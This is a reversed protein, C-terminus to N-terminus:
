QSIIVGLCDKDNKQFRVLYPFENEYAEDGNIIFSGDAVNWYKNHGCNNGYSRFNLYTTPLSFSAADPLGSEGQYSVPPIPISCCSTVGFFGFLVVLGAKNMKEFAQFALNFLESLIIPKKYM